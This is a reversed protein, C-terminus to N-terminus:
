YANADLNLQYEVKKNKEQLGVDQLQRGHKRSALSAM